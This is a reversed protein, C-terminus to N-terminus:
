EYLQERFKAKLNLFFILLDTGQGCHSNIQKTLSHGKEKYM